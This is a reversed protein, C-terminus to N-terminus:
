KWVLYEMIENEEKETLIHHIYDSTWNSSNDFEVENNRVTLCFTANYNTTIIKDNDNNRFSTGVKSCRVIYHNLTYYFEGVKPESVVYTPPLEDITNVNTILM